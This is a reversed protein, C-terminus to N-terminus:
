DDEGFVGAQCLAAVVGFVVLMVAAICVREIPVVRVSYWIYDFGWYTLTGAVLLGPLVGVLALYKM